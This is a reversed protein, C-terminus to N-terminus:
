FPMKEGLIKEAANRLATLRQSDDETDAKIIGLFFGADMSILGKIRFEDEDKTKIIDEVILVADYLQGM